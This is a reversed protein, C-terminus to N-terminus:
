LKLWFASYTIDTSYFVDSAWDLLTLMLSIASSQCLAAKHVTNEETTIIKDAQRFAMKYSVSRNYLDPDLLIVFQIMRTRNGKIDGKM